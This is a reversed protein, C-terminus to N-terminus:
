VLSVRLLVLLKEESARLVLAELGQEEVAVARGVAGVLLGRTIAEGGGGAGSALGVLRGTLSVYLM